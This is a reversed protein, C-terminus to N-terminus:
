DGKRDKERRTKLKKGLILRPLGGYLEAEALIEYGAGQMNKLSFRNDPHVTCLCYWQSLDRRKKLAEEAAELMKRQLGNGCFVKKVAATDMYVLHEREQESLATYEAMYEEKEEPFLVAFFGAAEQSERERALIVFSNGLLADLLCARDGAAFWEKKQVNRAADEMIEVLEEIQEAGAMEMVFEM